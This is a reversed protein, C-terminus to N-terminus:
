AGAEPASEADPSFKSRGIPKPGRRRASLRSAAWLDVPADPSGFDYLPRQGWWVAVPPGDDLAPACLKNLTGLKIPYGLSQLYECFDARTGRRM